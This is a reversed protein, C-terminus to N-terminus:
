LCVSIMLCKALFSFVGEIGVDHRRILEATVIAGWREGHAVALDRMAQYHALQAQVASTRSALVRTREASNLLSFQGLRAAFEEPDAAQDAPLDALTETRSAEM